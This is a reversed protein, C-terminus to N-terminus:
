GRILVSCELKGEKSIENENSAVSVYKAEKVKENIMMQNTKFILVKLNLKTM